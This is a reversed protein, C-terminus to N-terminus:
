VQILTFDNQLQTNVASAGWCNETQSTSIKIKFINTNVAKSIYKIIMMMVVTFKKM